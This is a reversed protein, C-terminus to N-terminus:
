NTTSPQHTISSDIAIEDIIRNNMGIVLLHSAGLYMAMDAMFEKDHHWQIKGSTSVPFRGSADKFTYGKVPQGSDETRQIRDDTM